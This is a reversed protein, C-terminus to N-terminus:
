FYYKRVLVDWDQENWPDVIVKSLKTLSSSELKRIQVEAGDPIGITQCIISNLSIIPFNEYWLSSSIKLPFLFHKGNFELEMVQFLSNANKVKISQMQLPTWTM